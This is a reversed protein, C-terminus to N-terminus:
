QFWPLGHQRWGGLGGRQGQSNADGEFGELINYAALGLETARKAAAVSRVGSRCLLVVKKGQEKQAVAQLLVDFDPNMAMSPWQKWALPVAGPVQGVWAREADTRVDVLVAEGSQVWHWALEPAIDGAYGSAPHIKQQETTLTM